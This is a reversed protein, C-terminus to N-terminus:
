LPQFYTVLLIRELNKVVRIREHIRSFYIVNPYLIVKYRTGTKMGLCVASDCAMIQLLLMYNHWGFFTIITQELYHALLTHSTRAVPHPHRCHPGSCIWRKRECVVAKGGGTCDSASALSVTRGSGVRRRGGGRQQARWCAVAGRAYAPRNEDLERRRRFL